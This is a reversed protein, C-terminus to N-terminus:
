QGIESADGVLESISRPGDGLAYPGPRLAVLEAGAASSPYVVMAPPPSVPASPDLRWVGQFMGVPRYSKGRAYLFVLVREGATFTPAGRVMMRRDGLQGGAVRVRLRGRKPGRFSHEISLIAETEIRGGSRLGRTRVVRAISIIKAGEQLRELSLRELVSGSAPVAQIIGLVLLSSALALARPRSDRIPAGPPGEAM